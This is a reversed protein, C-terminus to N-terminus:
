NGLEISRLGGGLFRKPHGDGGFQWTGGLHHKESGSIEGSHAIVGGGKSPAERIAM